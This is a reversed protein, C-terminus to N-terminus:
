VTPANRSPKTCQPIEPLPANLCEPM